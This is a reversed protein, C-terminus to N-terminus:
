ISDISEYLTVINPHQLKWLIKIEKLLNAKVNPDILKYKEYMKIAVKHGTPKHSALRVEAYGGSGM